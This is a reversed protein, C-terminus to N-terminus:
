WYLVKDSVTTAYFFGLAGGSINGPASAPAPKYINGNVELQKNLANFYTYTQQTLAHLRIQVPKHSYRVYPYYDWYPYHGEPVLSHQVNLPMLRVPITNIGPTLFKDDFVYYPLVSFTAGSAVGPALYFDYRYAHLSYNMNLAYYNKENPADKFRAVPILGRNLYPSLMTDRAWGVSEMAPAPPMYASSRFVQDGIQVELSYTHGTQGKIKTTQYFGRDHFSARDNVTTFVSDIGQDNYNTSDRFYYVYRDISPPSPILTDKIGTDDTIIVLANKVPEASDRYPFYPDPDALLGDSKTVRVYYPGWMNSIRGEIVYLPKAAQPGLEFERTCGAITVILLLSAIGQQIRM